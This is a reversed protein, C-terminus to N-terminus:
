QPCDQVNTLSMLGAASITRVRTSPASSSSWLLDLRTQIHIAFLVCGTATVLPTAPGDCSSAECRSALATAAKPWRAALSGGDVLSPPLDIRKPARFVPDGEEIRTPAHRYGTLVVSGAEPM